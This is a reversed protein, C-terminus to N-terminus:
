ANPEPEPGEPPEAQPREAPTIFAERTAPTAVAERVIGTSAPLVSPLVERLKNDRIKEALVKELPTVKDVVPKERVDKGKARVNLLFARLSVPTAAFQLTFWSEFDSSRRGSGSPFALDTRLSQTRSASLGPLGPQGRTEGDLYLRQQGQDAWIFNGKLRVRVRAQGGSVSNVITTAAASPMWQLASADTNWLIPDGPLLVPTAM